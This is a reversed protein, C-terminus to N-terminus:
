RKDLLHQQLFSELRRAFDLRTELKMWGPGEDPYEVFLPPNGARQLADRMRNGHVIQVRADRGGFALFVPVKIQEALNVPSVRELMERDKEVDGILRPLDYRRAVGSIDTGWRWTLLLRPDTVAVWAAACRLRTGDRAAGMLTAYGGYSAGAMCVRKDDAKGERVAWDLADILDDQMRQGWQRWGARHWPEGYGTSGRFEPEVVLYGRSALFQPMDDWEWVRGRLWPGGHVLVVTPLPGKAGTPQTVWVPMSLGDRTNIRHFSTSAMQRPDVQRRVNAVKRWEPGRARYLWIQGPDRDSTAWVLVVMDDTGCRRCELRNVTAPLRKDIEDQVQQLRPDLWHTTPADVTMHFGLVPSGPGESVVRGRFDFGPTAVLPQPQAGPKSPDLRMLEAYGDGGVRTVYLGGRGDLSHALYPLDHRPGETLRRWAPQAGADRWYLVARDGERAWVAAPEGDPGFFWRYVGPPADLALSRVRGTALNVRKPFVGQVENQGDFLWQGVIVDGSGDRPVHLLRHDPELPQRRVVTRNDGIGAWTTEILQFWQKGDRSVTFLGPQWTQDGSGARRDEVVYVLWDEGVWQVDAVDANDHRAIMGMAKWEQLDFIVLGIRDRGARTNLALWRGSPSLRAADIDADTFFVEAPLPNAVALRPTMLFLCGLALCLALWSVRPAAGGPWSRSGTKAGHQAM